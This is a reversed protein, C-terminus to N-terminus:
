SVESPVGKNLVADIPIHYLNYSYTSPMDDTSRTGLFHFVPLIGIISLKVKFEGAPAVTQVIQFFNPLDRSEIFQALNTM